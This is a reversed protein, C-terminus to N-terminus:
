TRVACNSTETHVFVAPLEETLRAIRLYGSAGADSAGDATGNARRYAAFAEAQGAQRVVVSEGPAQCVFLEDRETLVFAETLRLFVSVDKRQEDGSLLGNAPRLEGQAERKPVLKIFLEGTKTQASLAEIATLVSVNEASAYAVIRDVTTRTFVRSLETFVFIQRGVPLTPFPQQFVGWFGYSWFGDAWFEASWFNGTAPQVPAVTGTATTSISLSAAGMMLGTTAGTSTLTASTSLSFSASGSMAGVPAPESSGFWNGLWTGLWNFM